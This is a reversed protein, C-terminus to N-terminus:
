MWKRAGINPNEASGYTLPRSEGKQQFSDLITKGKGSLLAVALREGLEEPKNRDGVMKREVSESGDELLIICSLELFGDQAISSHVGLPVQCGGELRRLLSREALCRQESDVHSAKQLIAITNEDDSRCQLGLAGQSVGYLFDPPGLIEEIRDEFEKGLRKLGAVALVIADYNGKDLKALRTNVNGRILKIALGPHIKKLIAERRVSSTGVISGLPLKALGGKGKHKANVVLCDRPDERETVAALTLGEPLRTPMDKLSHVVADYQDDLLGAELEKTFLGPTKAALAKLSEDLRKDGLAQLGEQVEIHLGPCERMLLKEVWRTQAMALDSKRTGIRLVNDRRRNEFNRLRVLALLCAGILGAGLVAASRGEM